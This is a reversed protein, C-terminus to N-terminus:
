PAQSAALVTAARHFFARVAGAQQGLPLPGVADASRGLEGAVGGPGDPVAALLRAAHAFAAHAHGADAYDATAADGAPVLLQEGHWRMLDLTERLREGRGATAEELAAALLRIGEAVSERRALGDVAGDRQRAEWDAFRNAAVADLAVADLAVEGGSAVAIPAGAVQGSPVDEDSSAAPLLVVLPTVLVWLWPALRRRRPPSPAARPVVLARARAGLAPSRLVRVVSGSAREVHGPLGGNRAM